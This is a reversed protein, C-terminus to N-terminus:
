RCAIRSVRHELLERTGQRADGVCGQTSVQTCGNANCSDSSHM